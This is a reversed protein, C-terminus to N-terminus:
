VEAPDDFPVAGTKDDALSALINRPIETDVVEVNVTHSM